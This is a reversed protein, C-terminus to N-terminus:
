NIDAKTPARGEGLASQIAQEVVEPGADRTERWESLRQRDVGLENLVITRSGSLQPNGAKAIEGSAQGRDVEDAMRMEARTIIRLM